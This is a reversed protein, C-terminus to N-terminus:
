GVHPEGEHHHSVHRRYAVNTNGIDVAVLLM